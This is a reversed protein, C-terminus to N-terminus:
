RIFRFNTPPSVPRRRWGLQIVEFDDATLASFAPNLVSNNWRSDTTGSIYMDSGNDAVILGYRKMARFIRQVEPTFGAINKSAKLRLRAGMPPAGATSGARHSAPWVYNNTARTTVRFAHTIEASGFAEDYRVLGPLIALGAADASTWGEPRRDNTALNFMAGSGAEWRNMGANWRTAFLEYLLNRDRDVILLHRDGSTGGGAVGGEIYNPTTKAQEPIPYGSLGGITTDSEDDYGFTPQVRPTDGSVVVYPIGYPPPGFDPHLRRIATPTSASRGSIWDILQPSNIDLPATSIDQNWWNTVPFVQRGVLPEILVADASLVTVAFAVALLSSGLRVLM